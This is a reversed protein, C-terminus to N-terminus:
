FIRLEGYLTIPDVVSRRYAKLGCNFDHLKIGSMLSTVANFLKSPLTKTVPDQRSQKWGSVLDAGENIRALLAPIEEPDDQLDADMTIVYDGKAEKFGVSLAASKGYNRRFSIVKVHSSKEYLERLILLSRDVSGDDVFIYEYDDGIRQMVEELKQFLESQAMFLRLLEIGIVSGSARLTM